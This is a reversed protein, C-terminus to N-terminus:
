FLEVEINQIFATLSYRDDIKAESLTILVNIVEDNKNILYVETRSGLLSKNGASLYKGIYETMDTNEVPSKEAILYSIKRGLVVKQKVKWLQEAAKNFFTIYGDKNITIVADLMGDLTNDNLIKLTEIEKFQNKIEARVIRLKKSLEIQSKQLAKEQKKLIETKEENENEIRVQETINTAIYVVKAPEGYLDLVVTYTGRLWVIKGTKTLRMHRGEVPKGNLINNWLIKFQDHDDEEMFDFITKTDLDETQYELLKLMKDNFEIIAGDPYYTAKFASRDLAEIQGKYDINVKKDKTRDIGLFLIKQPNGEFDRVSVYTAMTWIEEDKKTIHKMDGEYHRGGEVLKQWLRDFWDKDKDSIFISIHNGIIEKSSSYAMKETFKTNAYTLEGDLTYEARILTHNVSNTFSIFEDSQLAAEKQTATLQDMNYRMIEEQEAMLEAQKQSEELLSSTQMNIKINAITSAISEAVQEIFDREFKEFVKFSALEIVGHIVGEDDKIPSIIVSRPNAKGLGSTINVFNHSTDDIFITKKELACAGILGEGWLIKKDAFKKRDFAFFAIMEFYKTNDEEKVVFFGAQKADLYRSIKTTIKETLKELNDQNERLIAGFEALGESVWHRQEDEKKRITEEERSRKQEDRLNNLSQVLQDKQYITDFKIGTNGKRLQEIFQYTKKAKIQEREITGENENLKSLFVKSIRYSVLMFLGPVIDILYQVYNAKHLEIISFINIPLNQSFIQITYIVILYVMGVIFSSVIFGRLLNKRKQDVM